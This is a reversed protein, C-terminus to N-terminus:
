NTTQSPELGVACCPVFSGEREEPLGPLHHTFSARYLGGRAAARMQKAEKHERSANLWARGGASFQAITHIEPDRM